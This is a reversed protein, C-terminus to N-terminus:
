GLARYRELLDILLRMDGPVPAELRMPEGSVPHRIELSAAHLAQREMVVDEPGLGGGGAADAPLAAGDVLQSLTMTKGGYMVDAVMPHKMVSMHVRLQHTRGTKPKLRVLAYGRYQKEVEYLTTAEKGSEPRAAYRERVRPHRGLKVDIVDANLELTGHVVALYTKITQRHEFQHALRWHATDTKAVVMIGTTNRDLRHVIGPRFDGNVTSLSNSYFVLGNVLTGGRNGRAPHVVLHAQKNVALMHEDEYVIDLPVDEPPIENTPPPPLVLDVQDGPNLNYSSKTRKGNVTVAEERILGQIINRSFDPFRHRLYKDIRRNPLLRRITLTAHQAGDEEAELAMGEAAGDLNDDQKGSMMSGCFGAGIAVGWGFTM